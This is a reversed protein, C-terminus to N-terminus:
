ANIMKLIYSVVIIIAVIIYGGFIIKAGHKIPKKGQYVGFLLLVLLPITAPYLAFSKYLNGQLLALFSRQIGCGPCDYGTFNKFVCPMMHSNLWNFVGNLTFIFLLYIKM